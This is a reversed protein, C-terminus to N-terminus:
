KLWDKIIKEIEDFNSSSNYDAIQAAEGEFILADAILFKKVGEINSSIYVSKLNEKNIYRKNFGM